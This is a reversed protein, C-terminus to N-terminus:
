KLVIVKCYFPLFVNCHSLLIDVDDCVYNVCQLALINEKFM